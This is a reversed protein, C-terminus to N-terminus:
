ASRSIGARKLVSPTVGIERWAAYTIGKSAGYSAANAVFENELDTIDFTAETNALATELDLRVQILELRKIPNAAAIEAEIGALRAKMSEPTRRRGRKPKHSELAQLYKSIVRSQSRGEAMAAKHQPSLERGKAPAM